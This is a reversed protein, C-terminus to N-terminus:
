RPLLPKLEICPRAQRDGLRDLDGVPVQGDDGGAAVAVPVADADAVEDVRHPAVDVDRVEDHVVVNVAQRGALRRRCDFFPKTVFVVGYPAASYGIRGSSSAQRAPQPKMAWPKEPSTLCSDCIMSAAIWCLPKAYTLTYLGHTVNLLSSVYSQHRSFKIM